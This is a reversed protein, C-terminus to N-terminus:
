SSLHLHALKQGLHILEKSCNELTLCISHLSIGASNLHTSHSFLIHELYYSESLPSDCKPCQYDGFLPKCLTILLSQGCRTGHCGHELACNWVQLWNPCMLIFRLSPHKEARSRICAKDLAYLQHKAERWSIDLQGKIILSTFSTGWKEEMRKCDQVLTLECVDTSAFTSFVRSSLSDPHSSVVRHLFSLKATAIRAQMSPLNLPALNNYVRPLRLARKGIESQFSELLDLITDTITWSECGYLLVPMVSTEILERASLPNLKGQFLGLSGLSFFARCAKLINNKVSTASSLSSNWWFGLCCCEDQRSLSLNPLELCESM